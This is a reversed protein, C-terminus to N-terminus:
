VAGHQCDETHHTTDAIETRTDSLTNSPCFYAPLRKPNNSSIGHPRYLSMLHQLKPDSRPASTVGCTANLVTPRSCSRSCLDASPRATQCHLFWRLFASLPLEIQKEKLYFLSGENTFWSFVWVVGWLTSLVSSASIYKLFGTFGAMPQSRKVQKWHLDTATLQQTFIRM